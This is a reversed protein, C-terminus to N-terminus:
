HGAAPRGQRRRGALREKLGALYEDQSFKRGCVMCTVPGFPEAEPDFGGPTVNQAEGCHPCPVPMIEIAM